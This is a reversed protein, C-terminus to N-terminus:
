KLGWSESFNFWYGTCFRFRAKGSFADFAEIYAGHSEVGFLYVTGAKETMEVRHYGAGALERRGASWVDAKWVPKGGKGEFGAVQYPFGSIATYAAVVPRKEVLVGVFSDILLQDFTNKPFEISREDSSYVFDQGKVEVQLQKDKYRAVKPKSPDPNAPDPFAHHRGPFLDVDTVAFAWWDPISAKTREKVFTVFKTLETADYVDDTRFEEEKKRKAPRLHTEWAAQLAIGIDEDKLSDRLGARGLRLFYNKYAEATKDRTETRLVSARLAVITPDADGAAASTAVVIVLAPLALLSCVRRGSLMIGGSKLIL